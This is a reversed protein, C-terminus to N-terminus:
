KGLFKYCLDTMYNESNLGDKLENKSLKSLRLWFYDIWKESVNASENEGSQKLQEYYAQRFTEKNLLQNDKIVKSAYKKILEIEPNSM